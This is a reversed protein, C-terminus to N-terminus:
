SRVNAKRNSGYCGHFSPPRPDRPRRPRNVNAPQSVDPHETGPTGGKTDDETIHSGSPIGAEKDNIARGGERTDRSDGYGGGPIDRSRDPQRQPGTSMSIPKSPDPRNADAEPDALDEIAAGQTGTRRGSPTLGSSEHTTPADIGADPAIVAHGPMEGPTVEGREDAVDGSGPKSTQDAM